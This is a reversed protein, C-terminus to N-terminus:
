DKTYVLLVHIYVITKRTFSSVKQAYKYSEVKTFIKFPM